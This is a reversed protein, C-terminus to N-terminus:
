FYRYITVCCGSETWSLYVEHVVTCIRAWQDLRRFGGISLLISANYKTNLRVILIVFVLVFSLWIMSTPRGIKYEYSYQASFKGSLFSTSVCM